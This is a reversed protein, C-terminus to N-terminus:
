ITFRPQYCLGAPLAAAAFFDIRATKNVINLDIGGRIPAHCLNLLEELLRPKRGGCAPELDIHDILDMHERIVRKIGHEFREFLGRRLHLENKGGCVRLFNRHRDQGSAQLEAQFIQAELDQFPMQM